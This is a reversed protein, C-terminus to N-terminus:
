ASALDQQFLFFTRSPVCFTTTPNLISCFTTREREPLGRLENGNNHNDNKIHAPDDDGASTLFLHKLTRSLSRKTHITIVDHYLEASMPFFFCLHYWRLILLFTKKKKIVHAPHKLIAPQNQRILYIRQKCCSNM